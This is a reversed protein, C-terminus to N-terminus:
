RWLEEDSVKTLPIWRHRVSPNGDYFGTVRIKKGMQRRRCSSLLGLYHSTAQNAGLGNCHRWLLRLPTEFLRRRLPKNLRKNLHLDYFDDFSRTVPRLPIRPQGTFEGWLSGTVRFINGNLSMLMIKQVLVQINNISGKPAFNLWIKFLISINKNLFICKFIDDAFHHGKQRPRLTNLVHHRWPVSRTGPGTEIDSLVDKRLIEYLRSAALNTNLITRDSQFKVPVEAATSGIHRDFKM